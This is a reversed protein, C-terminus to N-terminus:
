MEYVGYTAPGIFAPVTPSAHTWYDPPTSSGFSITSCYIIVPGKGTGGKGGVEIGNGGTGGTGGSINGIRYREDPDMELQPGGGEGGEGGIHGHGGPSGSERKRSSSGQLKSGEIKRLSGLVEDVKVGTYGAILKVLATNHRELPSGKDASSFFQGLKGKSGADKLDQTMSALERQLEQVITQGKSPNTKAMDDIIPTICEIRAALQVLGQANSSTQKIHGTIEILPEIIGSLAGGLPIGSTIGSLTRLPFDLVNSATRVTEPNILCPTSEPSIVEGSKNEVQSRKITLVVQIRVLLRRFFQRLHM